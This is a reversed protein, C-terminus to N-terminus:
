VMVVKLPITLRDNINYSVCLEWGEVEFDEYGDMQRRLGIIGHFSMTELAKKALKHDEVYIPNSQYNDGVLGNYNANRSYEIDLVNPKLYKNLRLIDKKAGYGDLEVSRHNNSLTISKFYIDEDQSAFKVDIQFPYCGDGDEFLRFNSSLVILPTTKPAEKAVESSKSGPKSVKFKLCNSLFKNRYHPWRNENPEPLSFFDVLEKKLQNLRSECDAAGIKIAVDRDNVVGTMESFDFDPALVSFYKTKLAWAAGMENLCVPRTYYNHTHLIIVFLNYNNFTECLYEIIDRGLPIRYGDVSTCLIDKVGIFELLTVIENAFEKDLEAHSIFVLPPNTGPTKEKPSAIIGELGLQLSESISELVSLGHNMEHEFERKFNFGTNKATITDEFEKVYRHAEGFGSILIDKCTLQWKNIKRRASDVDEHVYYTVNIAMGSRERMADLGSLVAKGETIKQEILEAIQM